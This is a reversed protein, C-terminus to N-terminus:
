NISFWYKKQNRTQGRSYQLSTIYFLINYKSDQLCRLQYNEHIVNNSMTNKRFYQQINPKKHTYKCSNTHSIQVPRRTLKPRNLMSSSPIFCTEDMKCEIRWEEPSKKGRKMTFSPKLKWYSNMLKKLGFM